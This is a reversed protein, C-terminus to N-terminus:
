CPARRRGCRRNRWVAWFRGKAEVDSRLVELKALAAKEVQEFVSDPLPVQAGAELLDPLHCSHVLHISAALPKALTIACDVARQSHSSFDTPVLLIKQPSM